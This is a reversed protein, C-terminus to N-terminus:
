KKLFVFRQVGDTKVRLRVGSELDYARIAAKFDRLDSVRRDGVGVIVDGTRLGADHAAGGTTVSTVVVGKQTDDLGLREAIEPTLFEVELGIEELNDAGGTRATQTELEGIEVDLTMREGDRLIEVEVQTGPNTTAVLNRLTKMDPTAKGDYEVIIDGSKFGAKAAPGDSPVDGVLVGDTGDFNFSEAMDENLDQIYVGLWGRVVKGEKIIAEMVQRAMNIPIAFGIGQYGGTRSAIATNIGIVQGQLNVLPGGSNGPNIAADTQIFDEYMEPDGFVTRGEASIIGATVTQSLGFPNGLALVWQGVNLKGSDGLEAPMLDTAEIKLVALDTRDDVGIVEADFKRNDSLTVEIEDVERVVHHNTLIYGDDSVIVGTGLGQQMREREQGRPGRQGFFREFFDDEGFPGPMPLPQMRPSRMTVKRLSRINVVSPKVAKAVHQFAVSLDNAHQLQDRAAAAQGSEVAYAVRGVLDPWSLGIVTAMLAVVIVYTVPRAYKM